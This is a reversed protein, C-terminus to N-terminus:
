KDRESIIRKVELYEEDTVPSILDEITIGFVDAIKILISVKMDPRNLISNLSQPTKNIRRGLEALPIGIKDCELKVKERVDINKKKIKKTKKM